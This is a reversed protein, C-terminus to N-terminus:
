GGPRKGPTGQPPGASAPRQGAAPVGEPQGATGPVSAGGVAGPRGIESPPGARERAAAAQEPLRALADGRRSLAETVQQLAHEVEIGQRVLEGLVALAVPRDEARAAQIVAHLAEGDVGAEVADAAASFDADTPKEVSRNLAEQARALGSARREVATAIRDEPIGKARGEAIRSELLAVPIGAQAARSLAAEIRDNANDPRQAEATLPVLALLALTIISRRM